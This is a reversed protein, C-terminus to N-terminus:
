YQKVVHQYLFLLLANPEYSWSKRHQRGFRPLLIFRLDFSSRSRNSSAKWSPASVLILWKPLTPGSEVLQIPSCDSPVVADKPTWLNHIMAELHEKLFQHDTRSPMWLIMINMGRSGRYRSEERWTKMERIPSVQSDVMKSSKHALPSKRVLLNTINTSKM